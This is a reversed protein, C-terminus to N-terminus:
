SEEPHESFTFSSFVWFFSTMPMLNPASHAAAPPLACPADGTSSVKRHLMGFPIVCCENLWIRIQLYFSTSDEALLQLIFIFMLPHLSCGQTKGWKSLQKQIRLKCLMQIVWIHFSKMCLSWYVCHQLLQVFRTLWQVCSFRNTSCIQQM